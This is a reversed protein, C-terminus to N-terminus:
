AYLVLVQSGTQDHRRGSQGQEAANAVLQMVQRWCFPPQGVEHKVKWALQRAVRGRLQRRERMYRVCGDAAKDPAEPVLVVVFRAAMGALLLSAARRQKECGDLRVALGTEDRRMLLLAVSVEGCGEMTDRILHHGLNSFSNQSRSLYPQDAIAVAVKQGVI